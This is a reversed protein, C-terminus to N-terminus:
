LNLYCASFIDKLSTIVGDQFSRHSQKLHKRLNRVVCFDFSVSLLAASIFSINVNKAQTQVIERFKSIQKRSNGLYIKFKRELSDWFGFISDAM